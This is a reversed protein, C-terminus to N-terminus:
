YGDADAYLSIINYDKFSTKLLPKELTVAGSSDVHRRFLGESNSFWTTGLKDVALAAVNTNKLPEFSEILEIYNGLSRTLGSKSGIWINGQNDKFLTNISTFTPSVKQDYNKFQNTKLDYVLLGKQPCSIWFQN